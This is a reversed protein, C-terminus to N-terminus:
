NVPLFKLSKFVNEIEDGISQDANDVFTATLDVAFVEEANERLTLLTKQTVESEKESSPHTVVYGLEFSAVDAGDIKWSKTSVRRVKVGPTRLSVKTAEITSDLLQSLEPRSAGKLPTKTVVFRPRVTLGPLPAVYRADVVTTSAQASDMSPTWKESLRLEMALQEDHIRAFRVEVGSDADSEGINEDCAKCAVFGSLVPLLCLGLFRFRSLETRTM